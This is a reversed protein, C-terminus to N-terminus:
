FKKYRTLDKINAWYFAAQRLKCALCGGCHIPIKNKFGKGVYCSYTYQLPIKLKVGLRVVEDKDYNILPALIKYNGHFTAEEALENVRKLFKKTADKFPLQGEERIGTYIDYRQNKSIFRNEAYALAILLFLSNRCPVWWLLSEKYLKKIDGLDKKTTKPYKVNKRMLISSIDKLWDLKIIKLPIELKSSIKKACFLEEKVARQGYDFFIGFFDKPKIKNKIYYATVTSDLGGSLIIIANKM